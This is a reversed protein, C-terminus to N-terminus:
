SNGSAAGQVSLQWLDWMQHFDSPNTCQTGSNVVTLHRFNAVAFVLHGVFKETLCKETFLCDGGGLFFVYRKRWAGGKRFFVWFSHIFTLKSFSVYTSNEAQFVRTMDPLKHLFFFTNWKEYQWCQIVWNLTQTSLKLPMSNLLVKSSQGNRATTWIHTQKSRDCEM